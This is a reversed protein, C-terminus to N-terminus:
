LVQLHMCTISTQYQKERQKWHLIQHSLKAEVMTTKETIDKMQIDIENQLQIIKFTVFLLEMSYARCLSKIDTPIASKYKDEIEQRTYGDFLINMNYCVNQAKEIDNHKVSDFRM